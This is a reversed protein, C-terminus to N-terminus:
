RWLTSNTKMQLSFNSARNFPIMMVNIRINIKKALGGHTCFCQKQKDIETHYQTHGMDLLCM